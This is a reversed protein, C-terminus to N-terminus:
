KVNYYNPDRLLFVMQTNIFNGALSCVLLICPLALLNAKSYHPKMRIGFYEVREKQIAMNLMLSSM